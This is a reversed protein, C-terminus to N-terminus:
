LYKYIVSCGGFTVRRWWAQGTLCSAEENFRIVAESFDVVMWWSTPFELMRRVLDHPNCTEIWRVFVQRDGEFATCHVLTHYASDEELGNSSTGCHSCSSVRNIRHFYCDFGGHVTLLQALRFSVKGHSRSLWKGM